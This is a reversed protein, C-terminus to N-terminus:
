KTNIIVDVQASVYSPFKLKSLDEELKVDYM